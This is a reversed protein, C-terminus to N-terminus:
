IAVKAEPPSALLYFFRNGRPGPGFSVVRYGRGLYHLFAHRTSERWRRATDESSQRVAHIDEPVEILIRPADPLPRVLPVNTGKQDPLTNVVPLNEGIEIPTHSGGSDSNEQQPPATQWVAICRDMGLDRHLDSAMDPYMDPVYEVIVAGLRGLNLHANKAVLPDFSWTIEGIGLKRAEDRQFLKLQTGIGADRWEPNVALMDSWHIPKGDRYGAMGFVFGILLGKRDFAGAAIGGIKQCVLLTSSSVLGRFGRGWTEEQLRECALYDEFTSLRRILIKGRTGRPCFEVAESPPISM